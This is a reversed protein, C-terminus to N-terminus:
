LNEWHTMQRGQFARAAAAGRWEVHPVQRPTQSQKVREMPSRGIEDEGALFRFFQQLCKHKNLATSASRTDIM